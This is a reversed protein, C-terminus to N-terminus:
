DNDFYDFIPIPMPGDLISYESIEIGDSEEKKGEDSYDTVTFDSTASQTVSVQDLELPNSSSNGTETAIQKETPAKFEYASLDSMSELIYDLESQNSKAWLLSSLLLSSFLIPTYWKM